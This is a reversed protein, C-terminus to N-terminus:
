NFLRARAQTLGIRTMWFLRSLRNFGTGGFHVWGLTQGQAFRGILHHLACHRHQRSFDVIDIQCCQDLDQLVVASVHVRGHVQLNMFGQDSGTMSGTPLAM